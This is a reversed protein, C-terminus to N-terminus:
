GLSPLQIRSSRPEVLPVQISRVRMVEGVTRDGPAESRMPRVVRCNCFYGHWECQSVGRAGIHAQDALAILIGTVGTRAQQDHGVAHAPVGCAFEGTSRGDRRQRPHDVPGIVM